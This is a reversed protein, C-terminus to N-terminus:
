PRGAALSLSSASWSIGKSSTWFHWGTGNDNFVWHLGSAYCSDELNDGWPVEISTSAVNHASPSQGAYAPSMILAVMSFVMVLSALINKTILRRHRESDKINSDM